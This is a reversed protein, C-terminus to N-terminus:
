SIRIELILNFVPSGLLANGAGVMRVLNEKVTSSAEVLRGSSM